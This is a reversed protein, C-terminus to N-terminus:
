RSLPTCINNAQNKNKNKKALVPSNKLCQKHYPFCISANAWKSAFTMVHIKLLFLSIFGRYVTFTCDQCSMKLHLLLVSKLSRSKCCNSEQLPPLRKISMGSLIMPIPYFTCSYSPSCQADKTYSVLIISVNLKM